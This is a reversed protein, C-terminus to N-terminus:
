PKPMLPVSEWGVGALRWGRWSGPVPFLTDSPESDAPLGGHCLLVLRTLVGPVWRQQRVM